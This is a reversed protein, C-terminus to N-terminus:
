ETLLKNKVGELRQITQETNESKEGIKTKVAKLNHFVNEINSVGEIIRKKMIMDSIFNDFFMGFENEFAILTVDFNKFEIDLERLLKGLENIMLRSEVNFEKAKRIAIEKSTGAAFQKRRNWSINSEVDRLTASFLTLTSFIRDTLELSRRLKSLQLKNDEIEKFVNSLAIGQHSNDSLLEQERKEMLVQLEQRLVDLENIKRNLIEIELDSVSKDSKLSDYQKSLAYYENRKNELDFKTDVFISSILGKISFSQLKEIETNKKELSELLESLTSELKSANSRAIQIEREVISMDNIRTLIEQIQQKILSV